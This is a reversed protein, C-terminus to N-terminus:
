RPRQSRIVKRRNVEHRRISALPPVGFIDEYECFTCIYLEEEEEQEEGGREHHQHNVHEQQIRRARAYVALEWSLEARMRSRLRETATTGHFSMRRSRWLKAEASPQPPLHSFSPVREKQAEEQAEKEIHAMLKGSLLHRDQRNEPYINGDLDKESPTM